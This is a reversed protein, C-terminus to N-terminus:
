ISAAALTLRTQAVDATMQDVLADVSAFKEQGRLRAV